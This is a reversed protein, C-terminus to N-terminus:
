ITCKFVTVTISYESFLVDNIYFTGGMRDRVRKEIGKDAAGPASPEM